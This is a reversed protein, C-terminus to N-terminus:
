AAGKREADAGDFGRYWADRLTQGDEGMGYLPCASRPRGARRAAAGAEVAQRYKAETISM